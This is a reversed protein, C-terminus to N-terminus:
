QNEKKKKKRMGGQGGRTKHYRIKKRDTPTRFKLAMRKGLKKRKRGQGSRKFQIRKRKIKARNKRTYQRAYQKKKISTKKALAPRRRQQEELEDDFELQDLISMVEELQEDSLSDPELELIFNSIRNFLEQKVDEVDEAPENLFNDVQELVDYM